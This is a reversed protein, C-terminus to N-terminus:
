VQPVLPQRMFPANRAVFRVDPDDYGKKKLSDLFKKLEGKNIRVKGAKTLVGVVQEPKGAKKRKKAAMPSDEEQPQTLGGDRV